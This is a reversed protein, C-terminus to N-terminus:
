VQVIQEQFPSSEEDFRKKPQREMFAEPGIPRDTKRSEPGRFAFWAM